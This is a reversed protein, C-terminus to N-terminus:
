TQPPIKKLGKRQESKVEEHAHGKEKGKEKHKKRSSKGRHVSQIKTAAAEEKKSHKVNTKSIQGKKGDGDHDDQVTSQNSTGRKNRKKWALKKLVKHISDTKHTEMRQRKMANWLRFGGNAKILKEQMDQGPHEVLGNAKTFFEYEEFSIKNDKNTDAINVANTATKKLLKQTAKDAASHKEDFKVGYSCWMIEEMEKRTLYKSDDKDFVQFVFHHLDNTLFDWMSFVYEEFNIEGSNGYDMRNFVIESFHNTGLDYYDHFEKYSIEHDHKADGHLQSSSCDLKAIATFTKWLSNLAVDSLHLKRFLQMTAPDFEQLHHSLEMKAARKSAGGGM